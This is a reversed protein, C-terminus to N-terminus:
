TLAAVAAIGLAIVVGVMVGVGLSVTVMNRSRTLVAGVVVAVVTFAGQLVNM